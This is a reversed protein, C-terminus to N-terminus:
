RSQAFLRSTAAEMAMNAVLALGELIKAAEEDGPLNEEDADNLLDLFRTLIASGESLQLMADFPLASLEVGDADLRRMWAVSQDLLDLAQARWPGAKGDAFRNYTERVAKWREKLLRDFTKRQRSNYFELNARGALFRKKVASLSDGGRHLEDRMYAEIEVANLSLGVDQLIADLSDDAGMMESFIGDPFLDEGMMESFIGDPFLDEAPSEGVWWLILDVGVIVPEVLKSRDLFDAISLVPDETLSSGAAFFAQALQEDAFTQSGFEDFVTELASEMKRLWARGRSKRAAATEKATSRELSLVGKAWDLVTLVLTDGDRFGSEAYFEKLDVVTLTVLPFESSEVMLRRANEPNDEAQYRIAGVPGLLPAFTAAKDARLDIRTKPIAAGAATKFTCHMPPLASDVFPVLRDGPVLIGASVEFPTPRVRFRANQFFLRRPVYLLREPDYFSLCQEWLIEEVRSSLMRGGTRSRRRAEGTAEELTFPRGAGLAFKEVARELPIKKM